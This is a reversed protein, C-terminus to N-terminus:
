LNQGTLFACEVQVTHIMEPIGAMVENRSLVERASKM